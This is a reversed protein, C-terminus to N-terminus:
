QIVTHCAAGKLIRMGCAPPSYKTSLGPTISNCAVGRSHDPLYLRYYSLCFGGRTDDDTQKSDRGLFSLYFTPLTFFSVPLTIIRKLAVIVIGKACKANKRLRELAPPLHRLLSCCSMPTSSCLVAKPCKLCRLPM